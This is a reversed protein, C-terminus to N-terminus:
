RHGDVGHHHHHRGHMWLHMLPCAFLVLFPLYGIVHPGHGTLILLSAVAGVLAWLAINRLTMTNVLRSAM